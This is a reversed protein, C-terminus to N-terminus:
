PVLVIDVSPGCGSSCGLWQDLQGKTLPLLQPGRTVWCIHRRNMGQGKESKCCPPGGLPSPHSFTTTGSFSDQHVCSASRPFGAQFSSLRPLPAWGWVLAGLPPRGSLVGQIVSYAAGHQPGELEWCRGCGPCLWDEILM